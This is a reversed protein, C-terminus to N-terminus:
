LVARIAMKGLNTKFFARTLMNQVTITASFLRLLLAERVRRVVKRNRM